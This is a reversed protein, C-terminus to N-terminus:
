LNISQSNNSEYEKKKKNSHYMEEIKQLVTLQRNLIEIRTELNEIMAQTLKEKDPAELLDKKLKNYESDLDTLSQKVENDIDKFKETKYKKLAQKKEEILGTYYVEAEVIEPAIKKLEQVNANEPNKLNTSVNWWIISASAILLTVVAAIKSLTTYRIVIAKAEKESGQKDLKREIREWLHEEPEFQNLEQKNKRIFDELSPM